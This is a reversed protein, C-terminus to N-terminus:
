HGGDDHPLELYERSERLIVVLSCGCDECCSIETQTELCLVNNM